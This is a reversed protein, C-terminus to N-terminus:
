LHTLHLNRVRGEDIAPTIRAIDAGRTRRAAWTGAVAYVGAVLATILLTLLIAM